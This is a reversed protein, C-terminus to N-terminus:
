PVLLENRYKYYTTANIGFLAVVEKYNMGKLIAGIIAEKKNPRVHNGDSVDKVVGTNICDLLYKIARFVHTRASDVTMRMVQSIEEYSYGDIVKMRFVTRRVAPLMDLARSINTDIHLQYDNQPPQFNNMFARKRKQKRLYDLTENHVIRFLFSSDDEEAGRQKQYVKIFSEAVIDRSAEYDRTIKCCYLVMIEHWKDFLRKLREETM